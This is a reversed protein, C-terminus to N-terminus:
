SSPRIPSASSQPRRKAWGAFKPRSPPPWRDATPPRMSCPWVKHWGRVSKQRELMEMLNMVIQKRVLKEVAAMVKDREENLQKRAEQM